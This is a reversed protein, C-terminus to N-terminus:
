ALLKAIQGVADALDAARRCVRLVPDAEFADRQEAGRGSDVRFPTVGAALAAQADSIADGVFVSRGLDLNLDRGARLLLGPKPKRCDCGEEPRHPCLYVADVRGGTANIERLMRVHIDEVVAVAVRGRGIIAQNTVVIIAAPWSRMARLAELAGPLFVFEEWRKVNDPRNANIVGDRDLFIAPRRELPPDTMPQMRGNEGM